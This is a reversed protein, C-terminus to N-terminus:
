LASPMGPAGRFIYNFSIPERFDPNGIITRKAIRIDDLLQEVISDCGIVNSFLKRCEKEVDGARNWDKSFDEATLITPDVSSDSLYRRQCSLQANEVIQEVHRANAFCPSVMALRIMEMAVENAEPFCSVRAEKMRLNTIQELQALSYEKFRISSELPFRSSLGPNVHRFMERLEYEYGVLLICQYSKRNKSVGNVLTDIAAKHLSNLNKGGGWLAYTDDIILVNGEAEHIANRVLEETEGVDKGILGPGAKRIVPDDVYILM